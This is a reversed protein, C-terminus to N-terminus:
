GFWHTDYGVVVIQAATAWFTQRPEKRDSTM